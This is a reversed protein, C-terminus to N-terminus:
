SSIFARMQELRKQCHERDRSDFRTMQLTEGDRTQLVPRYVETSGGEDLSRESEEIELSEIADFSIERSKNGHPREHRLTLRQERGDFRITTDGRWCLFGVSAAGFIAIAVFPGWGPDYRYYASVGALLAVILTSVAGFTLLKNEENSTELVLTKATEEVVDLQM